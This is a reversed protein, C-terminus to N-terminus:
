PTTAPTSDIWAFFIPDIDISIVGEIEAVSQRLVLNDRVHQFTARVFVAGNEVSITPSFGRFRSDAEIIERIRREIAEDDLPYLPIVRIENDVEAVGVTQWAIREVILKHAYFRVSGSLVVLGDGVVQEAPEDEIRARDVPADGTRRGHDRDVRHGM